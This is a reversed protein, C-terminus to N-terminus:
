PKIVVKLAQRDEAKAFAQLTDKLPFTASILPSLDVRESNVIEAAQRCDQTSCATTGTIILEKYHVLNSDFNINPSRPL